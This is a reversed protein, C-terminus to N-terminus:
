ATMTTATLLTGTRNDLQGCTTRSSLLRNRPQLSEFHKRGCLAARAFRLFFDVTEARGRVLPADGGKVHSIDLVYAAGGWGARIRDPPPEARGPAGDRGLVPQDAEILQVAGGHAIWQAPSWRRPTANAWPAGPAGSGRCSRTRMSSTRRITPRSGGRPSTTVPANGSGEAELVTVLNHAWADKNTRFGSSYITSDDPYLEAGNAWLLFHLDRQHHGGGGRM